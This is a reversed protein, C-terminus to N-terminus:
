GSLFHQTWVSYKASLFDHEASRDAPQSDDFQPWSWFGDAPQLVIVSKWRDARGNIQGNRGEMWGRMEGSLQKDRHWKHTQPHEMQRLRNVKMM